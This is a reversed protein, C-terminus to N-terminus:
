FLLVFLVDASFFYVVCVRIIVVVLLSVCVCVSVRLFVYRVSMFRILVCRIILLCLMMIICLLSDYSYWYCVSVCSALDYAM